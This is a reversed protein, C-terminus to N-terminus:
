SDTSNDNRERKVTAVSMKEGAFTGHGQIPVAKVVFDM